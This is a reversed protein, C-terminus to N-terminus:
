KTGPVRVLLVPVEAGHLVAEADSGMVAHRIGGSAHTGMVILDARWKRAEDVILDAVRGTFNEHLVTEADVGQAAAMTRAEMLIEKGGEAFDEVLPAAAIGTEPNLALASDDVIHVLRMQGGLAKSLKIAEQLGRKATDSGDVPVLIRQYM